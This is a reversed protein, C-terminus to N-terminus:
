KKEKPCVKIVTEGIEIVAGEHDTKIPLKDLCLKREPWPLAQCIAQYMQAGTAIKSCTAAIVKSAEGWHGCGSTALIVFAILVSAGNNLKKYIMSSFIGGVFGVITAVAESGEIAKAFALAFIGLIVVLTLIFAMHIKQFAM